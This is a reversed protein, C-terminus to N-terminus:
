ELRNIINNIDREELLFDYYNNIFKLISDYFADLEMRDLDITVNDNNILSLQINKIANGEDRVIRIRKIEKIKFSGVKENDKYEIKEHTLMLFDNYNNIGSVIKELVPTCICIAAFFLFRILNVEYELYIFIFIAPISFYIFLQTKLKKRHNRFILGGPIEKVKIPFLFEEWIILLMIIVALGILFMGLYISKNENLEHFSVTFIQFSLLSSIIFVLALLAISFQVPYTSRILKSM